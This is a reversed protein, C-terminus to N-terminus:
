SEIYEARCLPCVDHRGLWTMICDLHFGHSCARNKSFCVKEGVRYSDWCIPCPEKCDICRISHDETSLPQPDDHITTRRPCSSTTPKDNYNMKKTKQNNKKSTGNKMHKKKYKYSSHDYIVSNEQM